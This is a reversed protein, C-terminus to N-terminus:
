IIMNLGELLLLHLPYFFYFFYKMKAKGRKGSYFALLLVSCLAYYYIGGGFSSVMIFAGVGMSIAHVIPRDLKYLWMPCNNKTPHLLAAFPALMCGFFGYDITLMMNLLWVTAVVVFFLLFSIIKKETRIKKDFLCEKFFQLAYITLISLSFTVLVSMYTDGDYIFYVLQCLTALAFIGSFYRLKNRTYRCGEAIMFAFIPFSLRGIIRFIAVGPFFMIGVHDILMTVAAIIKLINGSLGCRSLDKAESIANNIM